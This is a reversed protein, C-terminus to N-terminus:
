KTTTNTQNSKITYTQQVLPKKAPSSTTKTIKELYVLNKKIDPKPNKYQLAPYQYTVV